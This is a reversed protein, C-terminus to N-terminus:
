NGATPKLKNLPTSRGGSLKPLFKSRVVVQFNCSSLKRVTAMSGDYYHSKPGDVAILGNSTHYVEFKALNVVVRVFSLSNAPRKKLV